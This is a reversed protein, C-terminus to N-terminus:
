KEGPGGLRALMRHDVIEYGSRRYVTVAPTNDATVFVEALDLGREQMWASTAGLLRQGIGKGRSVPEVFLWCVVGVPMRLYRDEQERAHVIGISRGTSRATAVMQAPDGAAALLANWDREVLEHTDIHRDIDAHSWHRGAAKSWAALHWRLFSRLWAYVAPKDRDPALEDIHVQASM